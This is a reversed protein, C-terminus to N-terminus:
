TDIKLQNCLKVVISVYEMAIDVLIEWPEVNALFYNDSCQEVYYGM